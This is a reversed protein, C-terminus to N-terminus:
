ASSAFHHHDINRTHTVFLWTTLCAFVASGAAFGYVAHHYQGVRSLLYGTALNVGLGAATSALVFRPRSFAFFMGTNWLGIVLLPYGILAVATVERMLSTPLLHLSDAVRYTLWGSLAAFPLFTGVRWFYFYFIERNFLKVDQVTHRSQGRRIRDYFALMSTHVWGVQFVFAIMAIDLGTEYDGRFQFPLTSAGTRATWAVWRDAFLFLYYLCGYVFFPLVIHVIRSSLFEGGPKWSRHSKRRLIAAAIVACLSGAVVIGVLQAALLPMGLLPHCIAVTGIGAVVAAGVFLNKELVFLVGCALWLLGLACHFAIAVWDLPFPLLGFYYNFAWGAFAWGVITVVGLVSWKLCAEAASEWDGTHILFLSRRASAQVIGGTAIFSSVTGIAVAAAADPSLDGGWLSLQYLLTSLTCLLVPIAFSIGNLYEFIGSRPKPPAPLRHEIQSKGFHSAAMALTSRFGYEHFAVSDTVGDLELRVALDYVDLPPQQKWINGAPKLCNPLDTRM